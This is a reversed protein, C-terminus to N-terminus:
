YQNITKIYKLIHNIESLCHNRTRLFMHYKLSYLTLFLLIQEFYLYQIVIYTNVKVNM